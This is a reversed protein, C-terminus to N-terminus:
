NNIKIGSSNTNQEDIQRVPWHTSLHEWNERRKCKTHGIKHQSKQNM